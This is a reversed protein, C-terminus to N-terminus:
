AALPQARRRVLEVREVLEAPTFPKTLVEDTDAIMRDGSLVEAPYGSVFLVPLSPLHERARISLTKGDMGDMAVDTVLIDVEGGAAILALAEEGSAATTVEYGSRRLMEATVMRVLDEDEALLVRGTETSPPLVVLREVVVVPEDVLPLRITFTTGHGRSTEVSITGGSQAVIGEVTSLGLGTGSRRTTFFPEFIRAKTEEDMGAGDDTVTLEASGGFARAAIRLNGGDPLADGANLALNMLVQELQPKDVRAVAGSELECTIEINSPLLSRLIPELGAVVCAVDVPEPRLVQRRSFALLQQTLDAARQASAAIVEVRRRRPDDQDLETLLIDTCGTVATMMNNFDHAIGGALKGVAEMKQAQRLEAELAKRATIDDVLSIGFSGDQARTLTVEVWVATGDRHVLRKQFTHSPRKGSMVENSAQLALNKDDPHTVETFHMRSLEGATYGIMKQFAPNTETMLGEAGISIGHGAADFMMRFRQESGEARRRLADSHQLLQWIRIVVLGTMAAGIIALEELDARGGVVRSFVIALPVTLPTCGLLVILRRPASDEVNAARVLLRSMSPHLAAAGFLMYALVYAVGIIRGSLEDNAFSPAFYAVDAAVICVSAGGLLRAAPLRLRSFLLRLVLLLLMVDCLPFIAALVGSLGGVEVANPEVVLPWLFSGLALAGIASELGTVRLPGLQRVLNIAAGAIALYAPIFLLDGLRFSTASAYVDVLPFTASAVGGFGLAAAVWLWFALRSPRHTRIGYIVAGFAVFAVIASLASAVHPNPELFFVLAAVGATAFLYWRLISRM